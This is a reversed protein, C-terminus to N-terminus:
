CSPCDIWEVTVNPVRVPVHHGLVRVVCVVFVIVNSVVVRSFLDAVLKRGLAHVM